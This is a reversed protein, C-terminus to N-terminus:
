AKPDAYGNPNNHQWRWHDACMTELKRTAKWGMLESAYATAAYYSAIDGPRRPKVEYPIRMGSAKEFARVVELVSSGAGTGLNVAFCKPDGLFRLASVHGAALDM